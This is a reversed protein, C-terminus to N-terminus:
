RRMQKDYFRVKMTNYITWALMISCWVVALMSITEGDIIFFILNVIVSAACLVCFVLCLRFANM